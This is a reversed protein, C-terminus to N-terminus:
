GGRSRCVHEGAAVGDDRRLIVPFRSPERRLRLWGGALVLGFLGGAVGGPEGFLFSGLSAGALLSLVPMIYSALAAALLAGDPLGVVVPEGAQAGIPNDVPYEPEHPHWLRAYLSSGCGRGGCAGCSAPAKSTVWATAGETRTILAPTEIM